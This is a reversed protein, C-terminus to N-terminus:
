SETGGTLSHRMQGHADDPAASAAPPREEPVLAAEITYSATGTAGTPLNYIEFYLYLPCKAFCKEGRQLRVKRVHRIHAPQREHHDDMQRGLVLTMQGLQQLLVRRHQNLLHVRGDLELGVADVHDRGIRIVM